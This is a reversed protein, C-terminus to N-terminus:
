PQVGPTFPERHLIRGHEANIMDVFDWFPKGASGQGRSAEHALMVVMHELRELRQEVTLKTATTM